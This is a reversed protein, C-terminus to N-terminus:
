TVCATNIVICFMNILLHTITYSVNIFHTSCKSPLHNGTASYVGQIIYLRAHELEKLFGESDEINEQFPIQEITKTNILDGEVKLAKPTYYAENYVKM